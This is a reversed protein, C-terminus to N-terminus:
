MDKISKQIEQIRKATDRFYKDNKYVSFFFKSAEELKGAEQLTVGLEYRFEMKRDRTSAEKAGKQLIDVSNRYKKLNRYCVGALLNSEERYEDNGALHLFLNIAEHNKSADMFSKAKKFEEDPKLRQAPEPEKKTEHLPIDQELYPFFKETLDEETDEPGILQVLDIPEEEGFGEFFKNLQELIRHSTGEELVFFNNVKLKRLKIELKIDIKEAYVFLECDKLDADGRIRNLINDADSSAEDAGTIIAEPKAAKMKALLGDGSGTEVQFGLKKLNSPLEGKRTFDDEIIFVAKREM